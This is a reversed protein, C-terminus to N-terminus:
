SLYLFLACFYGSLYFKIFKKIDMLFYGCTTVHNQTHVCLIHCLDYLPDTIKISETSNEFPPM